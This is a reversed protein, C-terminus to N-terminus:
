SRRLHLTEVAMAEENGVVDADLVAGRWWSSVHDLTPATSTTHHETTTTPSPPSTGALTFLEPSPTETVPPTAWATPQVDGNCALEDLTNSSACCSRTSSADVM